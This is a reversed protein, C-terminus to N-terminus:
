QTEQRSARGTELLAPRGKWDLYVLILTPPLAALLLLLAGESGHLSGEPSGAYVSAMFAIPLLLIAGALWGSVAWAWRARRALPLATLMAALGVAAFAFVLLAQVGVTSFRLIEALGAAGAAAAGAGLVAQFVAALKLARVQQIENDTM